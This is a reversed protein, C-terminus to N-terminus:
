KVTQIASRVAAETIAGLTQASDNQYGRLEVRQLGNSSTEVSLSSISTNLGFSARTVREGAPSVYTLVQCGSVIAAACVLHIGLIIKLVPQKM